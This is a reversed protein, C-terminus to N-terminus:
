TKINLHKKASKEIYDKFMRSMGNYTGYAKLHKAKINHEAYKKYYNDIDDKIVGIDYKDLKLKGDRLTFKVGEDYEKYLKDLEKIKDAKSKQKPKTEAKPKPEAKGITGHSDYLKKQLAASPMNKIYSSYNYKGPKGGMNEIMDSMVSDIKEISYKSYLEGLLKKSDANFFLDGPNIFNDKEILKEVKEIITHYKTQSMIVDLYPDDINDVIFSYDNQKPEVKPKPEAKSMPKPEAKQKPRPTQKRVYTKSADSIACMYSVNNEKAYQRVHKVWDSPM